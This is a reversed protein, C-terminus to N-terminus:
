SGDGCRNKKVVSLALRAAGAADPAYGDAGIQRAWEETVTAGGVLVKCRELLGAERLARVTARMSELTSTILASLLVVDPERERVVTLIKEVPVDVGLDDLGIGAGEVTMAVLNKGIDHFDGAVTAIVAKGEHKIDGPQLNPKLVLMAERMARAALLMEPVFIENREFLLGVGKMAAILGEDLIQGARVGSGLADHVLAVASNNEGAMVATRIEATIM